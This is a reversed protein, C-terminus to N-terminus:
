EGGPSPVMGLVSAVVEGVEIEVFRCNKPDHPCRGPCCGPPPLIIQFANGQPGWLAPSCAPLPCFLSVTPVGLAAAVHM